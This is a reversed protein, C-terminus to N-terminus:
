LIIRLEMVAGNIVYENDNVSVSLLEDMTVYINEENINLGICDGDMFPHLTCRKITQNGYLLHRIYVDAVMNNLANFKEIFENTIFQLM